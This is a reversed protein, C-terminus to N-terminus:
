RKKQLYFMLGVTLAFILALVVAVLVIHVREAFPLIATLISAAFLFLSAKTAIASRNGKIFDAKYGILVYLNKSKLIYLALAFLALAFISTPIM